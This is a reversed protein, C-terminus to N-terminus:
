KLSDLYNKLEKLYSHYVSLGYMKGMNRIGGYGSAIFLAVQKGNVDKRIKGAAKGKTISKYIADQWDSSIESLADSFSQNLPAMEEVLNIAPCGYKVNFFTNHLLVDKMMRYIEIAPDDAQLLPKVFFDHMGPAMLERIIALGMDDKTRFHYYLAGKTLQTTAIIDDISTAQFGNKYILEFAKSLIYLRTEAAKSM